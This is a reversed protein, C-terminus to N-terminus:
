LVLRDVVHQWSMGSAVIRGEAGLRECLGRDDALRRMAEAVAGPTPEVVLGNQGHKVLDTPGGSDRCTIVAKSSAFAETTVFGYDEDSPTFM